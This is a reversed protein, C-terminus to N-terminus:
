VSMFYSLSPLIDYVVLDFYLFIQPFNTNTFIILVFNLVISWYHTEIFYLVSYTGYQFSKKLEQGLINVANLQLM